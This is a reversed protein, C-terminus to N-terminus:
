KSDQQPQKFTALSVLWVTALGGFFGPIMASIGFGLGNWLAGIFGGFLMGCFAGYRTTKKYYLCMLLVPGFSCGLGVWCYNVLEFITKPREYAIALAAICTIVVSLRSVWVVQQSTANKHLTNKYLDEAIVSALVLIQSDMTSITAALIACLVLGAFFPSFLHQVMEVFVLENNTLPNPFFGIATLGVCTAASLALCQWLTSIWKSKNLESPNKIAMFKNVIHPQGFYGFGWGASLSLIECLTAGSLDPLLTMAAGKSAANSWITETGGMAVVALTPVSIVVVLLFMGQFFDTWAIATFGGLYTYLLIASIGLLCGLFYNLHFLSEFLYGLGILGAAVYTTLFLISIFASTVRLWGSHDQLRQEFYSSLTLCSLRETEVRLRPAVLHWNLFMFVMLGIATWFHFLGNLYVVMPLGMFLWASMDAANASIAIVWYNLSRGGLLYDSANKQRHSALLGVGILLLFYLGFALAMAQSM